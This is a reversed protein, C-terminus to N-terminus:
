EENGALQKLLKSLTARVSEITYPDDPHRPAGPKEFHPREGMVQGWEMDAQRVLEALVYESDLIRQCYSALVMLPPDISKLLLESGKINRHLVVVLAGASDVLHSRLWTEIEMEAQQIRSVPSEGKMAGPGAMRGIAEELTFKRGDRIERELDADAASRQKDQNASM